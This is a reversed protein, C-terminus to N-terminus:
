FAQGIGLYIQVGSGTDGSVPAAVDLRIPGLGTKYRLGLGAGSHWNGTGDYFSEAGVYGADFFAVAGFTDNISTRLEASIGLFSRGGIRVGGGLDVDLSQYPQGRVTGGGGSYFLFDPHTDTLGAGFVSGFQLRGALVVRNDAGFGRYIRGDGYTRAGSGTGGLGLFPTAQLNVFYGGTPDLPDDRRDLTAAAPFTLLSFERNGIGDETQSYIYTIGLEAELDDSFRKAAGVGFSIQDSLYDPEDLHEYQTLAFVKTDPGLAAPSEIRADFSYDIGGTAGGINAVEAGVRFREAGGLLNRHLWYGSLMVGDLSSLEAGFGFRRPKEDALALGIDMKNGPGLTEAESLAVSSFAGTRRLRDAVRALEAPSFPAGGPLGAIRRVRSERVASPTDIVLDGFRVLPGQDIQVQANLTNAAHDATISQGAPTAKAHGVDRWGDVAAGVADRIVTSRAPAGTRFDAPLRTDRALPAIRATGFRFRPGPNVAITINSIQRPVSLLPISAAEKGDILIHVVGSYHGNAYLTEVMRGYDALAAAFLDRADTNKESVASQVFSAGRLDQRLSKDDGAVRFDLKELAIAPGCILFVTCLLSLFRAFDPVPRM